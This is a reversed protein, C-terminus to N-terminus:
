SPGADSRDVITGKYRELRAVLCVLPSASVDPVSDGVPTARENRILRIREPELGLRRAFLEVEFRM